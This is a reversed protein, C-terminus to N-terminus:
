AGGRAPAESRELRRIGGSEALFVLSARSVFLGSEFVGVIAGIRQELGAPDGIPGFNCDLIRNGGDSVFPQGAKDLRLNVKAGLQELAAQTPEVGFSAVEVPVAFRSGLREVLKSGDAIIVLRNSAAAVIKERLLAGGHGKILNLSGREVEDAGDITMDLRLHAAFNTLPIDLATAMAATRESTPIGAFRLGQRRRRALAELAFAATSGTGLGVIMDDEVLEAAAEGAARKLRDIETSNPAAGRM